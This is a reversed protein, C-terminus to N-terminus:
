KAGTIPLSELHIEELIVIIDLRESDIVTVSGMNAMMVDRQMGGPYTCPVPRAQLPLVLSSSSPAARCVHHISSM